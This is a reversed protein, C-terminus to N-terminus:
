ELDREHAVEGPEGALLLWEERQAGLVQVGQASVLSKRVGALGVTSRAVHAARSGRAALPWCWGLALRSGVAGATM